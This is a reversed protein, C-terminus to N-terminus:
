STKVILFAFIKFFLGKGEMVPKSAESGINGLGSVKKTM